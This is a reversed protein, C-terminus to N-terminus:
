WQRDCVSYGPQFLAKLTVPDFVNYIVGHGLCASSTIVDGNVRISQDLDIFGSVGFVSHVVEMASSRDKYNWTRSNSDLYIRDTSSQLHQYVHSQNYGFSSNAIYVFSSENWHYTSGDTPVPAVRWYYVTSDRFSTGPDFEIIGGLSSVTRTAKLSSNFLETTDIEMVYQRTPSTPDATSAALRINTKNVISYKYPYVPTLEDEYIFFTKTVTNNTESLEDYKNLNDISVILKNQGKDRSAIIPVDISLSDEYRISKINKSLLTTTSGDPYQRKISVSVSDGTAKGINYFYAKVNFSKSAVSVFSPNIVVQPDEIAFDPKDFAYIKLAPDGHLVTQEAHLYKSTSDIFSNLLNQIGGAMSVSIDKNYGVPSNLTNIFGLNYYNLYDAVGFHTSGVLCISGREKALVYKEAISSIVNLRTTSFGYFDGADCGSVLFAPYKGQNNYAEPENLNYNLTTSSSHGFYNIIGIGQAFLQSMLANTIPTAAGTTSKSFTYVNAGYLTDKIINEYSKLYNGLYTDEFDNSAGVVHVVTKMWAKNEVTQTNDKQVQEYEKIKDLYIKVEDNTIASLRGIPTAAVPNLDNSALINDSAPWGFTPVLNLRDAYESSENYRYQDYTVAKGIIFVYKPKVAYKNRTYQLFNKVSLPHKKIGFAFQDVLEDIDYIKANYNGGQASSRYARYQEVANDGTFLLKNSIILFNGQNASLAYNIFNRKTFGTVLTINSAEENVLILTRDVSSSTLAFRLANPTATNAVYRKGNSIDYLVPTTAGSNFNTIELYNGNASAPLQFRFNTAGGFNFLRPYTLHIFGVAFHDGADASTKTVTITTTNSSIASLPISNNSLVQANYVTLPQNIYNAGNISVKIRRDTGTYSDGAVATTLVAAPGNTAVFLNTATATAADNNYISNTTWFEGMDYTSSHVVQGYYVGKGENIIDRYDQRYTYLFYPEPALTNNAVDNLINVLRKNNGTTNVTLFYAATDTELSYTDALQYAQNKYLVRDPKGDNMEGWFEIYGGAPLAGAPVSTYVPVEQGNRWLQFQEAPTNGLGLTNLADQNIRYLGTQGVKFKYYTKSYDIWENNYQAHAAAVMLLCAILVYKRM